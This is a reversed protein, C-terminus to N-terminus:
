RQTNVIPFMVKNNTANRTTEQQTKNARYCSITKDFVVKLIIAAFVAIGFIIVDHFLLATMNAQNVDPTFAQLQPMVEAFYIIINSSIKELFQLYPTQFLFYIFILVSFITTFKLINSTVSRKLLHHPYLM